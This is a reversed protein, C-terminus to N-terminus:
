KIYMTYWEFTICIYCKQARRVIFTRNFHVSRLVPACRIGLVPGPGTSFTYNIEREREREREYMRRLKEFCVLHKNQKDDNSYQIRM